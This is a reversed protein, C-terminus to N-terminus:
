WDTELDIAVELALRLAADIAQAGADLRVWIEEREVPLYAGADGERRRLWPRFCIADGSGEASVLHHESLFKTWDKDVSPAKDVPPEQSALYRCRGLAAKLADVLAPAEADGKAAARDGPAEIYRGATDECIARFTWESEAPNWYVGVCRPEPALGCLRRVWQPLPGLAAPLGGRRRRLEGQWRRWTQCWGDSRPTAM